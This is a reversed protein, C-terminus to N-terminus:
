FPIEDEDLPRMDVDARCTVCLPDDAQRPNPCGDNGCRKITGETEEISFVSEGAKMAAMIEAIVSVCESRTGRFLTVHTAGYPSNIVAILDYDFREWEDTALATLSTVANMNIAQNQNDGIIHLFM